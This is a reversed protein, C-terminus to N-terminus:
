NNGIAGIVAKKARPPLNVPLFQKESYLYDEGDNDIVRIMSPPDNALAKIVRYVRGQDLSAENGENDICIVYYPYRRDHRKGKSRSTEGASEMLKTGTSKLKM